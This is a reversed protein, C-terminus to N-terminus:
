ANKKSAEDRFQDQIIWGGVSLPEFNVMRAFTARFINFSNTGHARRGFLETREQRAELIVIQRRGDHVRRPAAHKVPYAARKCAGGMRCQFRQQQNQIFDAAFGDGRHKAAVQLESREIGGGGIAVHAVDEIVVVRMKAAGYQM